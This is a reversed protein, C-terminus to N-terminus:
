LQKIVKKIEFEKLLEHNKNSINLGWEPKSKQGNLLYDRNRFLANEKKWEQANILYVLPETNEKLIVLALFMNENLEYNWTEKKVYVYNTKQSITKVQIDIYKKRNVRIIFDIGKDDVESTFTDFGFLTFILKVWYEGINGIQLHSLRKYSFDNFITM